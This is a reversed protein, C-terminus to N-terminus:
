LMGDNQPSTRRRNPAKNLLGTIRLGELIGELRQVRIMSAVMSVADQQQITFHVDPFQESMAELFTQPNTVHDRIAHAAEEALYTALDGDVFGVFNFDYRTRDKVSQRILESQHKAEVFLMFVADPLNDRPVNKLDAIRAYIDKGARENREFRAQVEQTKHKRLMKKKKGFM